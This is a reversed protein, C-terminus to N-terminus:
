DVAKKNLVALAAFEMAQLDAFMAHWNKVKRARIVIEVGAYNFGHWGGMAGMVWQTRCGMFVEWARRNELWLEFDDGDGANDDVEDDDSGVVQEIQAESIGMARLNEARKDGGKSGDGGREDVPATM